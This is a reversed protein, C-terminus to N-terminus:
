AVCSPLLPPSTAGPRATFVCSSADTRSLVLLVSLSYSVQCCKVGQVDCVLVCQANLGWWWWWWGVGGVGVAGLWAQGTEDRKWTHYAACLSCFGTQHPRQQPTQSTEAAHIVGCLEMFKKTWSCLKWEWQFVSFLKLRRSLHLSSWIVRIKKYTTLQWSSSLITFLARQQRSLWEIM